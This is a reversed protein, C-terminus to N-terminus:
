KFELQIQGVLRVVSNSARRHRDHNNLFKITQIELLMSILEISNRSNLRRYEGWTATHCVENHSRGM